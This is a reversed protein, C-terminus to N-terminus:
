LDQEIHPFYDFENIHFRNSLDLESRDSSFSEESFEGISVSDEELNFDNIKKPM